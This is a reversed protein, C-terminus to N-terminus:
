NRTGGSTNKIKLDDLKYCRTLAVLNVEIKKGHKKKSIEGFRERDMKFSLFHCRQTSGLDANLTIIENKELYFKMKLHTTSVVADM